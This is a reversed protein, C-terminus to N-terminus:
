TVKATYISTPNNNLTRPVHYIHEFHMALIQETNKVIDSIM